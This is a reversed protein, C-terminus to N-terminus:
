CLQKRLIQLKQVLAVLADPKVPTQSFLAQQVHDQKSGSLRSILAIQQDQPMQGFDNHRLSLQRIIKQRLLTVMQESEGSHWRYRAAAALHELYNRRVTSHTPTLPGIRLTQRWLWFFIFILSALVLTKNNKWLLELLSPLSEYYLLWGKNRDKLLLNLFQANDFCGLNDNRWLSMDTVVTVRGQGSALQLIQTGYDNDGYFNLKQTDGSYILADKNNFFVQLKQAGYVQDIETLAPNDFCQYSLDKNNQAIRQEITKGKLIKKLEQAKPMVEEIEPEVYPVASVNYHRLLRDNNGSLEGEYVVESLLVLHGGQEVWDILADSRARSLSERRGDIIILDDPGPLQGLMQLGQRTEFRQDDYLQRSLKKAALYPNSLAEPGPGINVEIEKFRVGFAWVAITIVICAVAAAVWWKYKANPNM